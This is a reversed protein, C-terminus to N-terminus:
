LTEKNLRYFDQVDLVDGTCLIVNLEHLMDRFTQEIERAKERIEDQTKDWDRANVVKYLRDSTQDFQNCLTILNHASKRMETTTTTKTKM